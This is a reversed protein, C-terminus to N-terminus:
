DRPRFHMMWSSRILKGPSYHWYGDLTDLDYGHSCVVDALQLGKNPDADAYRYLISSLGPKEEYYGAERCSLVWAGHERLIEALKPMSKEAPKAFTKQTM